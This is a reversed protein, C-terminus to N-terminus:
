IYKGFDFVNPKVYRDDIATGDKQNQLIFMLRCCAHALHPEKSEPDLDEGDMFAMIHRMACSANRSVEMGKRYDNYDKYKLYGAYRVKAVARLGEPPVWALPPKGDDHTAAKHPPDDEEMLIENFQKRCSDLFHKIAEDTALVQEPHDSITIKPDQGDTLDVNVNPSPIGYDEAMCLVRSRYREKKTMLKRGHVPVAKSPSM